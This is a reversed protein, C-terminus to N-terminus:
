GVAYVAITTNATLVEITTYDGPIEIYRSSSQNPTHHVYVQYKGNLKVTSDTSDSINMLYICSTHHEISVVSNVSTLGTNSYVLTGQM